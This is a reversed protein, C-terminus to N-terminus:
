DEEGPIILGSQKAHEKRAEAHVRAIVDPDRVVSKVQSLRQELVRGTEKVHFVVLEGGVDFTIRCPEFTKEPAPKRSAEGM